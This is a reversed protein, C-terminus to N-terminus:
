SLVVTQPLVHLSDTDLLVVGVQESWVDRSTLVAYDMVRSRRGANARLSRLAQGIEKRLDSGDTPHLVVHLDDDEDPSEGWTTWSGALYVKLGSLPFMQVNDDATYGAVAAKHNPQSNCGAPVIGFHVAVDANNM